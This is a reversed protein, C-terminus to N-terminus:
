EANQLLEDTTIGLKKAMILFADDMYKTADPHSCNTYSLSRYFFQVTGDPRVSILKTDRFDCAVRCQFDVNEKTQWMPDENNDAVTKCLQWYLKLQQYSRPKKVGSVKCRLVQYAPYEKLKDM